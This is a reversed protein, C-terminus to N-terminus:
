KAVRREDAIAVELAKTQLQAYSPGFIKGCFEVAAEAQSQRYRRDHGRLTRVSDILASVNADLYDQIENFSRKTLENMAIEDACPRCVMLFDILQGVEDKEFDDFKAQMSDDRKATRLLRRMRGSLSDLEITLWQALDARMKALRKAWRNDGSLDMGTRMARASAHFDQILTGIQVFDRLAIAKQVRKVRGEMDVLLVDIGHAYPNKMIRGPDDSEVSATVFRVMQAPQAMRSFILAIGFPFAGCARFSPVELVAKFNATNEDNIKKIVSPLRSAFQSLTDALTFIALGDTLDEYAREGGIEGIVRRMRLPDAQCAKFNEALVIKFMDQARKIVEDAGAKDGQDVMQEHEARAITFEERMLDRQVWTAIGVMSARNIRGRVKVEPEDDVLFPDLPAFIARLFEDTRRNVPTEEGRSQRLVELLVAVTPVRSAALGSKELEELLKARMADPLRALHDKLQELTM